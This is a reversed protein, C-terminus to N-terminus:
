ALPERNRMRGALGTITLQGKLNVNEAFVGKHKGLLEIAKMRDHVLVQVGDKTVKVGAYADSNFGLDRTDKIFPSGVGDGICEPCEPNPDRAANFGAGGQPDFEEVPEVLDLGDAQQKAVARAHRMKAAQFEGRTRQYGFGEGWCHRCCTRRFEVLANIDTRAINVLPRLLDDTEVELRQLSEAKLQAVLATVAPNTLAHSAFSRASDPPVGVRRAAEAGRFGCAVYERAFQELRDPRGHEKM